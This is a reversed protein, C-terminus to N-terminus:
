STSSRKLQSVELLFYWCFETFGDIVSLIHRYGKPTPTLPGLFDIHWMSLISLITDGKDISYLFGEKRGQKRNALICTVCNNIVKGIKNRLDTISYDRQILVETKM